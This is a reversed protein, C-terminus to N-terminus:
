NANPNDSETVKLPAGRGFLARGYDDSSALGLAIQLSGTMELSMPGM